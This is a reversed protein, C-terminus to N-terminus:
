RALLMKMTLVGEATTLRALYIESAVTQGSQDRGDWVVQHAGAELKTDVLLRVLRGRLDYLALHVHGPAPLAYGITTMPNFPNPHNQDLRLQPTPPSAVDTLGPHPRHWFGLAAAYNTSARPGVAVQGLTCRLSHNAGGTNGGGGGVVQRALQTQAAAPVAAAVLLWVALGATTRM